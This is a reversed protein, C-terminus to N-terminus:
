PTCASRMFDDWARTARFWNGELGHRHISSTNLQYRDDGKGPLYVYGRNTSPDYEYSVAYIVREGQHDAYFSVYYEQLAAPREPVVGSFWDIIFGEKQEVGNVFAGPGSWVDFTRVTADTIEIPATLHAARIAIRLTPGKAVLSAPAIVAALLVLAAAAKRMM